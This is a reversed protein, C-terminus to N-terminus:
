RALTSRKSPPAWLVQANTADMPVARDKKARTARSSPPGDCWPPMSTAAPPPPDCLVVEASAYSGTASVHAAMALMVVARHLQAPAAHLLM